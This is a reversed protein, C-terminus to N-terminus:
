KEDLSMKVEPKDSLNGEHFNLRIQGNFRPRVKLLAEIRQIIHALTTIMNDRQESMSEEGGPRPNNRPGHRHHGLARGLHEM